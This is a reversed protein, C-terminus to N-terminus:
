ENLAISGADVGSLDGDYLQLCWNNNTCETDYRGFWIVGELSLPFTNDSM